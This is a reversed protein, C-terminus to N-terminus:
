STMGIVVVDFESPAPICFLVFLKRLYTRCGTNKENKSIFLLVIILNTKVHYSSNGFRLKDNDVEAKPKPQNRSVEGQYNKM